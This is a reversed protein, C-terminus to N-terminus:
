KIQVWCLDYVSNCACQIGGTEGFLEKNGQHFSGQVVREINCNPGPNTEIILVIIM